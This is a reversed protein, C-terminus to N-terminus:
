HASDESLRVLRPCDQQPDLNALAFGRAPHRRAQRQRPDKAQEVVKLLGEIDNEAVVWGGGSETIWQALENERGGVFIVPKGVAFTAAIKSPVMMGQWKSDLSALHVDVSCLHERLREAFVYPAMRIRAEPHQGAFAEIEAQRKGGGTFVWEPGRPGLRRAAELFEDFRHGLGMNGFYGFVLDDEGWGHEARLRLSKGDPWPELIPENWFPVWRVAHDTYAAVRNAMMPGLALILSAGDFQWRTLIRLAGALKQGLKSQFMGNAQMVDPYLDMIWHAHRGGRIKCALKGLIGLYPPTTLSMIVDPPNRALLLKTGIFGYFSIYDALQGWYSRHGFGLAPIRDLEVKDLFEHKRYREGGNNYSSRSPWVHVEHGQNVFECALDHLLRGTPAIDPPYFQNLLLIKM